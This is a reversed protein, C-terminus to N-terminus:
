YSNIRRLLSPDVTQTQRGLAHRACVYRRCAVVETNRCRCVMGISETVALLVVSLIFGHRWAHAPVVMVHDPSDFVFHNLFGFLLSALMSLTILLAATRKWKTWLLGAGILPLLIIV